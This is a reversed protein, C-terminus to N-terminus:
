GTSSMGMLDKAKFGHNPVVLSDLADASKISVSEETASSVIAVGELGDLLFHVTPNSTLLRTQYTPAFTSGIEWSGLGRTEHNKLVLCAVLADFAENAAIIGDYGVPPPDLGQCLGKFIAPRVLVSM